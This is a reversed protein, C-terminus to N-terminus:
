CGGSVMENKYIENRRDIEGQCERRFEDAASLAAGWSKAKRVKYDWTYWEQLLDVDSLYRIKM